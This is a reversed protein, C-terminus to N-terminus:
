VLNPKFECSRGAEAEKTSYNFTHAVAGM